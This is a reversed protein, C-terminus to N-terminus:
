TDTVPLRNTEDKLVLKALRRKRTVETCPRSGKVERIIGGPETM